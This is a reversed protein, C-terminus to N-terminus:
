DLGLVSELVRDFGPLLDYTMADSPNIWEYGQAEWDLKIEDTKVQVLVPHVIWTKDYKPEEQEFVKGEKISIIDEEGIGTEELIEDRAKKSVSREDDLFGSIGNWFNPYFNLSSSRQVILIKDRRQIVCNIVPARRINTYDTQGPKPEFKRNEGM